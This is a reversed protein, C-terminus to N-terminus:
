IGGFSGSKGKDALKFMLERVFEYEDTEMEEEGTISKRSFGKTTLLYNVIWM